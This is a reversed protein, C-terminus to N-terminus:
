LELTEQINKVIGSTIGKKDDVAALNLADVVWVTHLFVPM